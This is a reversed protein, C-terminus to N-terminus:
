QSRRAFRAGVFCAALALYIWSAPEPVVSGASPTFPYSTLWAIYEKGDVKGDGTIDEQPLVAAAFPYNTQWGVYDAGDVDGDYDLDGLPADWPPLVVEGGANPVGLPFSAQWAVFDAGDVDGDGDADGGMLSAGSAKPFNTQWIVFDSGSVAHDLDFDGAPWPPQAVARLRIEPIVATAPQEDTGVSAFVAGTPFNNGLDIEPLPGSPNWTGTYLRVPLKNATGEMQFQPQFIPSPLFESDPIPAYGIGHVVTSNGKPFEGMPLQAALAERRYFINGVTYGSVPNGFVAGRPAVSTGDTVNKMYVAAAAIGGPADTSGYLNWVGSPEAELYYRLTFASSERGFALLVIGFGILWNFRM